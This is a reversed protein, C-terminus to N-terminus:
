GVSLCMMFFDTRASTIAPVRIPPDEAPNAADGVGIAFGDFGTAPM